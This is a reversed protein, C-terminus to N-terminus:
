KQVNKEGKQIRLTIGLITFLKDQKNRSNRLSFINRLLIKIYPIRKIKYFNIDLKPCLINKVYFLIKLYIYDWDNLTSLNYSIDYIAFEKFSKKIKLSYNNNNIYDNLKLLAKSFEYPYKYNNNQCNTKQHMRYYVLKEDIHTIKNASLLSVRSFYLDNSRKIEQFELKQKKIFDTRFMKNWAANKFYLFIDDPIDNYNFTELNKISNPINPANDIILSKEKESYKNIGCICVDADTKELQNYLKEFMDNAFFDDSDLFSLYKGKAIKLGQNRAAGGGLNNLHLITINSYLKVYKELINLSNDTSGDDVCIIEIDKLTNNLISDLCKELYKETNYVPIIVSIKPREQM